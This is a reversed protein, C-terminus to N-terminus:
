SIENLVAVKMFPYFSLCPRLEQDYWRGKSEAQEFRDAMAASINQYLYLCTPKGSFVLGLIQNQHDYGAHTIVTSQAPLPELDLMLTWNQNAVSM